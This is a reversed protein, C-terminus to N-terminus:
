WPGGPRVEDTRRVGEGWRPSPFKRFSASLFPREVAALLAARLPVARGLRLRIARGRDLDRAPASDAAAVVLRPDGCSSAVVPLSPAPLPSCPANFTSLLFHPKVHVASWREPFALIPLLSRPAPVSLPADTLPASQSGDRIPCRQHCRTKRWELPGPNPWDEEARSLCRKVNETTMPPAGPPAELFVDDGERVLRAKRSQPDSPHLCSALFRFLEEKQEQPLAVAAAEIEALTSM